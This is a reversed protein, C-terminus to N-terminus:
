LRFATFGRSSKNEKTWVAIALSMVIDDHFGNEAFFKIHGNDSQKFIFSELEIRLDEDKVLQIDKVNFLHILRNIIEPKTKTNTNFDYLNKIKDKLTQYLVIGQNNNEITVAQFNWFDCVRKIEEMLFPAQVDTWKYFNVVKNDEDIITLVTSDTIIGVDIGAYYKKGAQPAELRELHLLEQVNNFVSASDVFEAEIEQQFLKTPLTSRFVDIIDKNVLPSDLSSFRLSNWTKETKGKLFYDYIYNKGKPTTIFLCKRGTVNLMPLLIAEVTERKVFAAEDVIMYHISNGRLSDESAASRFLMKSGNHFSIETDGKSQKKSKICGSEVLAFVIEQYVKQAQSDTPSVWMLRANDNNLAWYTFINEAICTKGFQRGVVAVTFFYDPSLCSKVIQKQLRHPKILNITTKM